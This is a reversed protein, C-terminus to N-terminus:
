LRMKRTKTGREEWTKIEVAHPLGQFNMRTRAQKIQKWPMVSCLKLRLPIALFPSTPTPHRYPILGIGAPTLEMHPVFGLLRVFGKTTKAVVGDANINAISADPRIWRAPETVVSSPAQEIQMAHYKRIFMHLGPVISSRMYRLARRHRAECSALMLSPQGLAHSTVARLLM